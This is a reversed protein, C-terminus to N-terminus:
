DERLCWPREGWIPDNRRNILGKLIKGDAYVYKTMANCAERIRGAELDAGISSSCIRSPGLNIAFSVLAAQRHPPMTSFSPVCKILPEAYRPVLKAIAERCQEPTFTMGIKLWPWDHNTIGGCVTVVGPPDFPLQEAKYSVGEWHNFMAISLALGAASLGGVGAAVKRAPPASRFLGFLNM